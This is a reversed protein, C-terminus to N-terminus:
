ISLNPSGLELDPLETQSPASALQGQLSVAELEAATHAFLSLAVSFHDEMVDFLRETSIRFLTSPELGTTECEFHDVELLGLGAVAGGPRTEDQWTNGQRDRTTTFVRGTEVVYLAPAELKRTENAGIPVMEAFHALRALAQIRSRALAPCARLVALREVFSLGLTPGLTARLNEADGPTKSRRRHLLATPRSLDPRPPSTPPLDRSLRGVLRCTLAFNDELFEFWDDIDLELVATDERAIADFAHPRGQSADILGLVGSAGFERTKVGLHVLGITGSIIFYVRDASSGQRYLAEGREVLVKRMRRALGASATLSEGEGLLTRIWLTRELDSSDDRRTPSPFWSDFASM